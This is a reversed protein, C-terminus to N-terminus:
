VSWCKFELDLKSILQVVTQALATQTQVQTSRKFFRSARGICFRVVVFTSKTKTSRPIALRFNASAGFENSLWYNRGLGHLGAYGKWPGKISRKVARLDNLEKDRTM